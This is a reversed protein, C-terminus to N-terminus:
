AMVGTLAEGEGGEEGGEEGGGLVGRRRRVRRCGGAGGSRSWERGPRLGRPPGARDRAEIRTAGRGVGAGRRAGSKTAAGSGRTAARTVAAATAGTAAMTHDCLPTLQTATTHARTDISKQEHIGVNKDTFVAFKRQAPRLHSESAQPESSESTCPRFNDVKGSIM